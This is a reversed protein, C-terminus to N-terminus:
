LVWSGTRLIEWWHTCWPGSVRRREDTFFFFDRSLARCPPKVDKSGLPAAKDRQEAGGPFQYCQSAARLNRHTPLPMLAPPPGSVRGCTAAPPARSAAAGVAPAAPRCGARSSPALAGLPWLAL